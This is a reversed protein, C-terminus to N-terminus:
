YKRTHRNKPPAPTDCYLEGRVIRDLHITRTVGRRLQNQTAALSACENRNPRCVDVSAGEFRAEASVTRSQRGEQAISIQEPFGQVVTFGTPSATRWKGAFYGESNQLVCQVVEGPAANRLREQRLETERREREAALRAAEARRKREAQDIEAQRERAELQQAPTLQLWEDESMNLPYTTCGALILTASFMLLTQILKKNM